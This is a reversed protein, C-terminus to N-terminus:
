AQSLQLLDTHLLPQEGFGRRIVPSELWEHLKRQFIDRSNRTFDLTVIRDDQIFSEPVRCPESVLLMLNGLAILGKNLRRLVVNPLFFNNYFKDDIFSDSVVVIVKRSNALALKLNELKPGSPLDEESLFVSLQLAEFAPHLQHIVFDRNDDVNLVFVDYNYTQLHNRIQLDNALNGGTDPLRVRLILGLKVYAYAQLTSQLKLLYTWSAITVSVLVCVIIVILCIEIYKMVIFDDDIKSQLIEFAAGEFISFDRESKSRNILRNESESISKWPLNSSTPYVVTIHPHWFESTIWVKKKWDYIENYFKFSHIGYVSSCACVLARVESRKMFKDYIMYISPLNLPMQYWIEMVFSVSPLCCKSSINPMMNLPIGNIYHEVRLYDGMSQLYFHEFSLLAGPPIDLYEYHDIVRSLNFVCVYDERVSVNDYISESSVSFPYGHHIITRLGARYIGFDESRIDFLTLSFKYFSDNKIKEDPVYIRKRPSNIVESYDQTFFLSLSHLRYEIPLIVRLSCSIEVKEGLCAEKHQKTLPVSKMNKHLVHEHSYLSSQHEDVFFSKQSVACEGDLIEVNQLFGHFKGHSTVFNIETNLPGYNIWSKLIDIVYCVFWMYSIIMAVVLVNILLLKMCVSNHEYIKKTKQYIQEVSILITRKSIILLHLIMTTSLADIDDLQRQRSYRLSLIVGSLGIFSTTIHCVNFSRKFILFTLWCTFITLEQLNNFTVIVLVYIVAMAATADM